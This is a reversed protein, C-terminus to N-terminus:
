IIPRSLNGLKLANLSLILYLVLTMGGDWEQSLGLRAMGMISNRTFLLSEQLIVLWFYREYSSLKSHRFETTPIELIILCVFYLM